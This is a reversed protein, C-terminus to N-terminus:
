KQAVETYFCQMFINPHLRCLSEARRSSFSLASAYGPRRELPPLEEKRKGAGWTPDPASGWGFDFKHIKAKFYSM